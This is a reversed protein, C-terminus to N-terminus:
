ESEELDLEVTLNRAEASTQRIELTLISGQDIKVEGLRTFYDTDKYRAGKDVQPYQYTIDVSSVYDRFISVGDDQIDLIVAQDYPASDLYLRLSKPVYDADVVYSKAAGFRDAGDNPTVQIYGGVFWILTKM